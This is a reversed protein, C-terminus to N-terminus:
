RNNTKQKKNTQQEYFVKGFDEIGQQVVLAKWAFNRLASLHPYKGKDFDRV